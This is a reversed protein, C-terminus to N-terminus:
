QFVQHAMLAMNYRALHEGAIHPLFRPAVRRKVVYDVHMHGSQAPFHIVLEALFQNVRHAAHTEHHALLRLLGGGRSKEIRTFCTTRTPKKWKRIKPLRQQLIWIGDANAVFILGRRDDRSMATVGAFERAVKPNRPDSFDMIRITQPTPASSPRFCHHSFGCDGGSGLSQGFRRRSRLRCGGVSGSPRDKTVDILTVNGGAEHEAYLYFSSYHQTELFRKVPGGTLPIHGVVQIEDKPDPAPKKNKASAPAAAIVLAACCMISSFLWRSKLVFRKKVNFPHKRPRLFKQCKESPETLIAPVTANLPCRLSLRPFLSHGRARLSILSRGLFTRVRRVSQYTSPKALTNTSEQPTVADKRNM